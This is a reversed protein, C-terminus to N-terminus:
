SHDQIWLRIRGAVSDVDQSVEDDTFRLFRIGYSEVFAQRQADRIKSPETDHTPGDIEIALKLEPCYFDLVYNGVGHQRRFKYGLLQSHKLCNWLVRESQTDHNRLDKRFSKLSKINFKSM